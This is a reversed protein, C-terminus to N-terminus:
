NPKDAISEFPDCYFEDEAKQELVEEETLIPTRKAKLALLDQKLQSAQDTKEQTPQM